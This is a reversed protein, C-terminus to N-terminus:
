PEASKTTKRCLNTNALFYVFRAKFPVVRCTLDPTDVIDEVAMFIQRCPRRQLDCTGSNEIQIIRPPEAIRVSCDPGMYESVRLCTFFSFVNTSEEHVGIYSPNQHTFRMSFAKRSNRKTLNTKQEIKKKLHRSKKEVCQELIESLESNVFVAKRLLSSSFFTM